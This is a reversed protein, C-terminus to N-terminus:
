YQVPCVKFATKKSYKCCYHEVRAIATEYTKKKTMTGKIDKMIESGNFEEQCGFHGAIRWDIDAGRGKRRDQEGEEEEEEEDDEEEGRKPVEQDVEWTLDDEIDSSDMYDDQLRRSM